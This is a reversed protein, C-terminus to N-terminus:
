NDDLLPPVSIDKSDIITLENVAGQLLTNLCITNITRAVGNTKTFIDAKASESFLANPNGCIRTHHDIYRVSEDCSMSQMEVALRIRQRLAGLHEMKIRRTIESQGTLIITICNQSDLDFNVLSKIEALSSDPLDQADDIVIVPKKALNPIKRFYQMKAAGSSYPPTINLGFLITKYLQAISLTPGRVYVPAYKNEDLEQRFGRLVVSKGIGIEGTLLVVDEKDVALSLMGKANAGANTPFIDKTRIDKSFPVTSFGYFDLMSKNM